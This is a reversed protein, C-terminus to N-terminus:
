GGAMMLWCGGALLWRPPKFSALGGARWCVGVSNALSGVDAAAHPSAQLELECRWPQTFAFRGSALAPIGSRKQFGWVRAHRLAECVAWHNTGSAGRGGTVRYSWLVVVGGDGMGDWGMGDWGMGDWGMGDWGMGDGMAPCRQRLVSGCEVQSNCILNCGERRASSVRPEHGPDAM